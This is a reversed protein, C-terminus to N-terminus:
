FFLYLAKGVGLFPDAAHGFFLFRLVNNEDNYLNLFLRMFTFIIILLSICSTMYMNFYNRVISDVIFIIYPLSFLFMRGYIAVLEPAILSLVFPFIFFSSFMIIEKNVRMSFFSFSFLLFYLFYTLSLSSGTSGDLYKSGSDYISSTIIIALFKFFLVFLFIFLILISFMKIRSDFLSLDYRNFLLIMFFVISIYIVSSIHISISILFIFCALNLKNDKLLNVVAITILSFLIQQRWIHVVSYFSAPILFFYLFVLFIYREKDVRRFSIVILTFIIIYISFIYLHEDSSLYNIFVWNYIHWLPENNGIDMYFSEFIDFFDRKNNFNFLNLYSIADDGSDEAWSVGYVRFYFMLSFAVVFFILFILDNPKKYLSVMSICALAILPNLFLFSLITISNVFVNM